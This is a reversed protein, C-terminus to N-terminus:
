RPLPNCQRDQDPLPRPRHCPRRRQFAPAAQLFYFWGSPATRAFLTSGNPRATFIASAHESIVNVIEIRQNKPNVVVDTRTPVSQSIHERKNAAIENVPLERLPAKGIQRNRFHAVENGARRQKTHND